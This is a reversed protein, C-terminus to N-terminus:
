RQTSLPASQTTMASLWYRGWTTMERDHHRFNERINRSGDSNLTKRPITACTNFYELKVLTGNWLENQKQTFHALQYKM